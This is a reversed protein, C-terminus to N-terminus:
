QVILKKADLFNGSHMRYYYMGKAINKTDLIYSHTGSAKMENVMVKIPRGQIDFLVLEVKSKVAVRYIISTNQYAPNPYNQGLYFNNNNSANAEKTLLRPPAAPISPQYTAVYNGNNADFFAYNIGKIVETTYTIPTGNFTIGTLQGTAAVVPIMAQLKYAGSAVSITFSLTNSSWTMSGFTSGNRGDLWTLMQKASIVPIQRAQASAIIADSGNSSNGGNFDTHMNACFVGYYGEPGIAKDLLADVFSRYTINSEDTMQTTLQYNDLITGDTDAFRMPMGSGTFM